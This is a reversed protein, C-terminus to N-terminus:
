ARTAKSAAAKQSRRRRRGRLAPEPFHHDLGLARAWLVSLHRVAADLDFEEGLVFWAYTFNSVMAVFANAALFPDLDPDVLGDAQLRAISQENRAVARKRMALRTERFEPNFTAVSEVIALFKANRRYFDVFHRNTAEITEIPDLEALNPVVPFMRQNVEDILDGFLEEKSAFYTYFSGVAVDAELAIDVIRGDLFGHEEFVRRGAALLRARTREGKTRPRGAPAADQGDLNMMPKNLDHV